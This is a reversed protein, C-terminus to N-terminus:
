TARRARPASLTVLMARSTSYHMRCHGVAGVVYSADARIERDERHLDIALREDIEVVGGRRLLRLCHELAELVGIGGFIGVHMAAQMVEGVGRGIGVLARALLHAGKEIGLALFLDDEGSVGGLRDIQDGVREAALADLGAVLDHERDHLVMGVDHRPMEQALALARHDLPRRDVVLAIEEDVFELLQEGRAGSHDRDGVHRVHEAGHHRHFLHHTECVRAANRHQEVAGLGGDMEVDVHLVDAAVEIDEGAVLEIPRGSDAHEVAPM